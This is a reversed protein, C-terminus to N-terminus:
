VRILHVETVPKRGQSAAFNRRVTLRVAERVSQDDQRSV